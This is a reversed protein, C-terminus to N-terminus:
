RFESMDLAYFEGTSGTTYIGHVRADVLRRLNERLSQEDLSYDENWPLTVGAWIGRLTDSTLRM